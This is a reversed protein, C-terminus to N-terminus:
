NYNSYKATYRVGPSEEEASEGESISYNHNTIFVEGTQECEETQTEMSITGSSRYWGRRPVSISRYKKLTPCARISLPECGTEIATSALSANSEVTSLLRPSSPQHTTAPAPSLSGGRNKAWEFDKRPVIRLVRPRITEIPKVSFDKRLELLKSLFTNSSEQSASPVSKLKTKRRSTKNISHDNLLSFSNRKVSVSLEKPLEPTGPSAYSHKYQSGPRIQKIRRRILQSLSHDPKPISDHKSNEKSKITTNPSDNCIQKSLPIYSSSDGRSRKYLYSVKPRTFTNTSPSLVNDGGCWSFRSSPLKNESSM